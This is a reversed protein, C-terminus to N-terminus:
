MAISVKQLRPASLLELIVGMPAQSESIYSTLDTLNPLPFALLMLPLNQFHLHRLLPAHRGLFGSPPQALQNYAPGSIELYELLTAPSRFKDITPLFPSFPSAFADGVESERSTPHVAGLGLKQPNKPPNWCSSSRDTTNQFARSPRIRFGFQLM